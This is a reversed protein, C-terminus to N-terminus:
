ANRWGDEYGRDYAQEVTETNDPLIDLGAIYMLLEALVQEVRPDEWGLALTRQRGVERRIM